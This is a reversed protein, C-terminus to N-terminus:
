NQNIDALARHMRMKQALKMHKNILIFFAISSFIAIIIWQVAGDNKIMLYLTLLFVVILVIRIASMINFRQRQQNYLSLFQDLRTKYILNQPAM